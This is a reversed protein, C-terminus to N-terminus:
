TVLIASYVSRSLFLMAAVRRSEAPLGEVVLRVVGQPVLLVADDGRAGLRQGALDGVGALVSEAVVLDPLQDRSGRVPHEPERRLHTGPAPRERNLHLM